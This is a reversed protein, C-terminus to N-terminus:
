VRGRACVWHVGGHQIRLRVGMHVGKGKLVGLSVGLGAGVGERVGEYQRVRVGTSVGMEEFCVGEGEHVRGRARVVAWVRRRDSERGRWM